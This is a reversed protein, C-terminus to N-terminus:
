APASLEHISDLVSHLRSNEDQLAVIAPDPLPLPTPPDVPETPDNTPTCLIDWAKQLDENAIDGYYRDLISHGYFLEVFADCLVESLRNQYRTGDAVPLVLAMLADHKAKTMNAAVIPHFPEHELAYEQDRPRIDVNVLLARNMTFGYAPLGKPYRKRNPNGTGPIVAGLDYMEQATHFEIPFDRPELDGPFPKGGVVSTYVRTALAIQADTGTVVIKGFRAETM